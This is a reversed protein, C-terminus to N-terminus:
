AHAQMWRWTARLGAALEVPARHDLARAARTVDACTAPVDGAQPPVREVIARRGVAAECAAVLEALSVARGSGLNYIAFGPAARECATAVSAALDEVFILDRRATGDGHVRIARGAGIGALFRAVAMDPRGRPGYATFFRLAVAGTGHADSWASALLEAARKTAAYPSAPRDCPDDERFPADAADARAGYVSSSSALVVHAGTARAAELVAATGGINTRVYRAPQALSPRVGALAALHCIVDARADDMARQMAAEDCVDAEAIAVGPALAAATRRKVEAPYLTDDFADVGAVHHGRAILTECVHSGIFGAAGTVLVRLSM